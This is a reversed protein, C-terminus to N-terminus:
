SAAAGLVRGFAAVQDGRLQDHGLVPAGDDGALIARGAALSMDLADFGGGRSPLAWKTVDRHRNLHRKEVQTHRNAHRYGAYMRRLM